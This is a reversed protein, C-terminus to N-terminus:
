LMVAQKPQRHGNIWPLKGGIRVGAYIVFKTWWHVGLVGMAELLVADADRRGALMYHSQRVFIAGGEKDMVPYESIVKGGQYLWDHIVAAKGYPGTPPLVVWLIRPISAFDTIFGVPVEIFDPANPEGLHYTFASHLKWSHGDMFEVELPTTFSSM